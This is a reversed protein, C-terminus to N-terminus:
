LVQHPLILRTSSVSNSHATRLILHATSNQILRIDLGISRISWNEKICHLYHVNEDFTWFNDVLNPGCKLLEPGCVTHMVATSSINKFFHYLDPLYKWTHTIGCPALGDDLARIFQTVFINIGRKSQLFDFATEQQLRVIRREEPVRSGAFPKRGSGSNDAGVVNAAAKPIGFVNSIFHARLKQDSFIHPYNTTRRSHSSSLLVLDQGVLRLRIPLQVGCYARFHDTMVYL